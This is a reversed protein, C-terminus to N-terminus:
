HSQLNKLIKNATEKIDEIEILNRQVFAELEPLSILIKGGVRYAPIRGEKILNRVTRQSLSLYAAARSVDFYGNEAAERNLLERLLQQINLLLDATGM